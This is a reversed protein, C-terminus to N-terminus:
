FVDLSDSRFSRVMVIFIGMGMFFWFRTLTTLVVMIFVVGALLLVLFFYAATANPRVPGGFVHEFVLYADTSITLPTIGQQFRYVPVEVPELQQFHLQEFVPAPYRFNVAWLFVQALILLGIIVVFLRQHVPPWTKWFAISYM